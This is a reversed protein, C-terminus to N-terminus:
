RDDASELAEMIVWLHRERETRSFFRVLREYRLEDVDIVIGKEGILSPPCQDDKIRVVTGAPFNAFKM